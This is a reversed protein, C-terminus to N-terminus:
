LLPSRPHDTRFCPVDRQLLRKGKKNLVIMSYLPHQRSRTIFVSGEVDLRDWKSRSDDFQYLAVHSHDKIIEIVNEDVTQLVRLNRERRATLDFELAM